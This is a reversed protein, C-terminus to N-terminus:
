RSRRIPGPEAPTPDAETPAARRLTLVTATVAGLVAIATGGFALVRTLPSLALTCASGPVCGSTLDVRAVLYAAVLVAIGGLLALAWGIWIAVGTRRM